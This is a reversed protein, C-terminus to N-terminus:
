KETKRRPKTQRAGVTATDTATAKPTKATRGVTADPVSQSRHLEEESLEAKAEAAIESAEARVKQTLAMAERAVVLGGKIASRLAPRWVSRRAAQGLIAGVAVVGVIHHM